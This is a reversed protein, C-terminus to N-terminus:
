AAASLERARGEALELLRSGAGRGTLEPHVYGDLLVRTGRLGYVHVVGAIRGDDVAVWADRELDLDDWEERLEAATWDSDDYVARDCAQVLALVEDFDSTPDPHRIEVAVCDLLDIRTRLSSQRRGVGPSSRPRSARPPQWRPRPFQSRCHWM